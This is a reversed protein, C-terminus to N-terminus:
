FLKNHGHGHSKNLNGFAAMAENLDLRGNRNKDLSRFVGRVMTEGLHGMGMGRVAIVFDKLSIFILKSLRLLLNSDIVM